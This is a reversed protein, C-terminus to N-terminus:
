EPVPIDDLHPSPFLWEGETRALELMDECTAEDAMRQMRFYTRDLQDSMETTIDYYFIESDAGLLSTESTSVVLGSIYDEGKVTGDLSATWRQSNYIEGSLIGDVLTTMGPNGDEDQDWEKDMNEMTPLPDNEIDQLKAGRVVVLRDSVFPSGPEASANSVHHTYLRLANIYRPPIVMWILDEEEVPTDDERFGHIDISCVKETLTLEGAKHSVRTLMYTITYVDQRNILPLGYNAVAVNIIMGWVGALPQAKTVDEPDGLALGSPSQECFGSEGCFYIFGNGVCDEDGDCPWDTVIPPPPQDGDEEQKQDEEQQLAQKDMCQGKSSCGLDVGLWHCDEDMRCDLQCYAEANCYRGEGCDTDQECAAFGMEELTHKTGREADCAIFGLLAATLILIMHKM